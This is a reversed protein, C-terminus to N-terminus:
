QAAKMGLVKAIGALQENLEKIGAAFENPGRVDVIQGTSELKTAITPDSAVAARVDAAIQERLALPMGRPGFIGGISEMVLAPYGSETVTPVDPASPARQRGTVALVKVKGAQMLPTVIALSSSLLQIRNEALDNPAQLIDRYPVKAMELGNSTLFGSMLFDANGNATAWNFKGPNARVLEVLERLSNVNLATSVSAALFLSSVNAVPILDRHADYPLKEKDYPHVAFTGVPVWLLTHDDNAAVFANIAVLGDGGPRNEIVAPKGWRAALRDAVLRATIDTGSAPGFPLIFKVTRQPYTQASAEPAHLNVVLATAVLLLTRLMINELGPKADYRM